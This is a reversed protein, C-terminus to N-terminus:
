LTSRDRIGIFCGSGSDFAWRKVSLYGSFKTLCILQPASAPAAGNTDSKVATVMCSLAVEVRGKDSGFTGSSMYRYDVGFRNGAILPFPTGYVSEVASLKSRTDTSEGAFARSQLLVLGGLLGESQVEVRTAGQTNHGKLTARNGVRRCSLTATVNKPRVQYTFAVAKTGAPLAFFPDTGVMTSVDDFGLANVIRPEGKPLRLMDKVAEVDEAPAYRSIDDVLFQALENGSAAAQKFWYDAKGEDVAGDQGSQFREALMLQANSDGAEAAATLQLLSLRQTRLQEAEAAARAAERQQSALQEARRVRSVEAQRAAEKREAEAREARMRQDEQQQGAATYRAELLADIKKVSDEGIRLEVEFVRERAQSVPKQLRLKITGPKVKTDLPCEGRFKGNILVEAGSDAGECGIRLLSDAAFAVGNALASITAVMVICLRKM